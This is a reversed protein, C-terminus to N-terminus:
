RVTHDNDGYRGELNAFPNPPIPRDAMFDHAWNQTYDCDPCIWGDGTPVLVGTDTRHKGDGRNACTFPHVWPTEQWIRLRFVQVPTFPADVIRRSM